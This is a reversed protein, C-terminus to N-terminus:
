SILIFKLSKIEDNNRSVRKIEQVTSSSNPHILLKSQRGPKEHMSPTQM